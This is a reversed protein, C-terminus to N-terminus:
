VLKAVFRRSWVPPKISDNSNLKFDGRAVGSSMTACGEIGVLDHNKQASEAERKQANSLIDQSQAGQSQLRRNLEQERDRAAKLGALEGQLGETM